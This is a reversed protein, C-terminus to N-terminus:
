EAAAATVPENELAAALADDVQECWVFRLDKRAAEPIDDHDRRNRAPLLVTRIGAAHAAAAAAVLENTDLAPRYTM